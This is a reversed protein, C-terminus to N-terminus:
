DRARPLCEPARFTQELIPRYLRTLTDLAREDRAGLVIRDPYLTDHFASGERLFEPNSVVAVRGNLKGGQSTAFSHRVLDEVLNASGIPVTSKNVVVVYDGSLHHGIAEAAAKVYQLNARGDAGSPTNVALFIIEAGGIAEAPDATFTLRSGAAALMEATFPEHIPAIGRRLASVRKEDVDFCRVRHGIYALAISTTLGVYGAGIVTVKNQHM